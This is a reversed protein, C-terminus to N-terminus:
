RAPRCTSRTTSPRSSEGEDLKRPARVTSVGYVALRAGAPSASAQVEPVRDQPVSFAVDIPALQTISPSATRMAQLQHHQRRRDAQPRRAGGGARRDPQRPHWKSGSLHESNARDISTTGDLQKVLADQTDVTRAPSRTRSRPAQYRELQVRTADLQADDRLRAASAQDLAIQFPRPDITALVPGQQRDRRGHVDGRYRARSRRAVTASALPTVTGLADLVVPLDATASRRRRGHESACGRM